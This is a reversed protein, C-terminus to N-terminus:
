VSATYPVSIPMIRREMGHLFLYQVAPNETGSHEPWASQLV